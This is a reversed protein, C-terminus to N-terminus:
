VDTRDICVGTCPRSRVRDAGCRVFNSATNNALGIRAFRDTQYGISRM